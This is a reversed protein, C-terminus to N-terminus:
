NYLLLVSLYIPSFCAGLTNATTAFLCFNYLIMQLASNVQFCVFRLSFILTFIHKMVPLTFCFFYYFFHRERKGKRGQHKM